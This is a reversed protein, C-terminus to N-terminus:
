YSFGNTQPDGMPKLFWKKKCNSKWSRLLSLIETSSFINCHPSFDDGVQLAVFLVTKGGCIAVYQPNFGGNNSVCIYISYIYIYLIYIYVCMYIHIYIINYVYDIDYHQQNWIMDRSIGMYGSHGLTIAVGLPGWRAGQCQSPACSTPLDM